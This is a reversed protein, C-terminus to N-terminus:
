IKQKVPPPPPSPPPRLHTPALNKLSNAWLREVKEEKSLGVLKKYQVKLNEILKEKDKDTSINWNESIEKNCFLLDSLINMFNKNWSKTEELEKEINSKIEKIYSIISEYENSYKNM